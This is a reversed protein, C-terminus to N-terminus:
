KVVYSDRAKVSTKDRDVRVKIKHNKAAKEEEKPYFGISYYTRLEEAIRSFALALDGTTNAQYVRGGTRNAMDNLYEGAKQYDEATTGNTGPIGIPSQPIPFPLPSKNKKPLPNPITPQQIIVPQNKAKQVESYTDYQIPYILADFELVDRLNKAGYSKRSTTDVGDSFLVIAKRGEIRGMEKNIIEDVADYLSTGSEIETSYIARNIEKRDSTVGTLVHIQESFSIVMVKDAPRLQSVFNIAARQIDKINFVLSYSMDLVLAVTFPQEQNSFFAIEQEAKNDFIQFDNKTLGGIFRGSRDLVRVPITVLKTDIKIVDNDTEVNLDAEDDNNEVSDKTDGTESKTSEIVEVPRQNAKENNNADPPNRRSQPYVVAASFIILILCILFSYKKM